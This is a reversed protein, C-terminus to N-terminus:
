NDKKLKKYGIFAGAGMAIWILSDIPAMEVDEVDGDEPVGIQAYLDGDILTMTFLIVAVLVFRQLYKNSNM